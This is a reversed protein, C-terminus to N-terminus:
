MVTARATGYPDSCVVVSHYNNLSLFPTQTHPLIPAGSWTQAPVVPCALYGGGVVRCNYVCTLHIFGCCSPAVCLTSKIKVTLSTNTCCGRTSQLGKDTLKIDHCPLLTHSSQQPANRRLAASHHQPCSVPLWIAMLLLLTAASCAKNVKCLKTTNLQSCSICIWISYSCGHVSVAM